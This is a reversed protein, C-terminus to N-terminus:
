PMVTLTLERTQGLASAIVNVRGESRAVLRYWGFVIDEVIAVPEDGEIVEIEFKTEFLGLLAQTSSFAEVSLLIEDGTLLTGEKAVTGIAAGEDNHRVLLLETADAVWVHIFDIVDGDPGLILLASPGPHNATIVADDVGLVDEDAAALTLAPGANGASQYDIGLGMSAGVALPADMGNQLCAQSLAGCEPRLSAQGLAGGSPPPGLYDSAGDAGCGVALSALLTLFYFRMLPANRM